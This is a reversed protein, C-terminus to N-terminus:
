LWESGAFFHECGFIFVYKCFTKLKYIIQSADERHTKDCCNSGCLKGFRQVCVRMSSQPQRSYDSIWSPSLLGPRIERDCHSDSFPTPVGQVLRIPAIDDLYFHNQELIGINKLWVVCTIHHALCVRPVVSITRLFTTRFWLSARAKTRAAGVWRQPEVMSDSSFASSIDLLVRDCM